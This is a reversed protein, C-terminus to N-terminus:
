EIRLLEWPREAPECVLDDFVVAAGVVKDENAKKRPAKGQRFPEGGFDLGEFVHRDRDSAEVDSQVPVVKAPTRGHGAHAGAVYRDGDVALRDDQDVIHEEGPSANAGGHLRQEVVAPGRANPERYHDVPAM